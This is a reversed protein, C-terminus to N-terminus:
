LKYLIGKSMKQLNYVLENVTERDSDSHNDKDNDAEDVDSYSSNDSDSNM